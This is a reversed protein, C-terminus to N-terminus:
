ASMGTNDLNRLLAATGISIVIKVGFTAVSSGREEATYAFPGSEMVKVKESGLGRSRRWGASVLLVLPYQGHIM